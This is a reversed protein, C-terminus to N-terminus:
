LNQNQFDHQRRYEIFAKPEVKTIDQFITEIIDQQFARKKGVNGFLESHKDKHTNESKKMVKEYMSQIENKSNGEKQLM